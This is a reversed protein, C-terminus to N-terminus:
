RGNSVTQFEMVCLCAYECIVGFVRFVFQVYTRFANMRRAGIKKKKGESRRKMKKSNMMPLVEDRTSNRCLRRRYVFVCVCVGSTFSSETKTDNASYIGIEIAEVCM